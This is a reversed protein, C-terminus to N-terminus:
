VLPGQSSPFAQVTFSEHASPAHWAPVGFSQLSPLTQVVSLQKGEVPAHTAVLLVALQVSPLAHVVPSVHEPPVHEPVPLRPHLSPLTHVTSVQLGTTPQSNVAAAIPVTHVSPEDHVVLSWHM